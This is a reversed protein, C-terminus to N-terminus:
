KCNVIEEMVAGPKAFGLVEYKGGLNHQLDTEYYREHSDDILVIRPRRKRVKSPGQTKM